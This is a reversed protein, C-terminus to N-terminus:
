LFLLYIGYVFFGVGTIRLLLSSIFFKIAFYGIMVGFLHLAATGSVFGLAFFIPNAARPMELGHATGHCLGFFAVFIM